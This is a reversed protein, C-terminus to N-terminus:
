RISRILISLTHTLAVVASLLPRYKSFFSLKQEYVPSSIFIWHSSSLFARSQDLSSSVVWGSLISIAVEWIKLSQFARDRDSGLLLPLCSGSGTRSFPM